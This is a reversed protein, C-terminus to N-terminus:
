YVATKILCICIVLLIYITSIRAWPPPTPILNGELWFKNNPSTQQKKKLCNYCVSGMNRKSISFKQEFILMHVYINGLFFFFFRQYTGSLDSPVLTCKPVNESMSKMSFHVSLHLAVTNEMAVTLCAM